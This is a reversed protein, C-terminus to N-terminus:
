PSDCELTLASVLKYVADTCHFLVAHRSKYLVALVGFRNSGNRFTREAEVTAPLASGM